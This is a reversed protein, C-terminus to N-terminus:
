SSAGATWAPQRAHEAPPYLLFNAAQIATEYDADPERDGAQWRADIHAVLQEDPALGHRQLYYAVTDTWIWEGDTRFSAPVVQGASPDLVDQTRATTHLVITGATLYHLMRDREGTDTIMRHGPDFGPGTDPKAFDFVRAIKFPPEGDRIPPEEDQADWILASGDLAAAQYPPPDIDLGIVEIDADQGAESHNALVAQLDGAVAPAVSRDPVQVVYVRRTRGPEDPDIAASPRVEDLEPGADPASFGDLPLRWARWVGVILAIRDQAARAMVQDLDDADLREEPGFASFWFPLRPYRAVPETNNLAGPKGALSKAAEIDHRLLPVDHETVMAVAAAGAAAPQGDALMRRASALENDPVWGALLQLFEHVAAEAPEHKGTSM